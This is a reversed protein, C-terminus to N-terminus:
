LFSFNDARKNARISHELYELSALLDLLSHRSIATKYGSFKQDYIQTRYDSAAQGLGDYSKSEIKMM